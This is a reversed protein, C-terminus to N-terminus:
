DADLLRLRDHWPSRRVTTAFRRDATIVLYGRLESLALYFCDYVPHDLALAIGAAVPALEAIPVLEDFVRCVQFPLEKVQDTTALGRRYRLWGVDCTEAVVLDPAVVPEGEEVLRRAAVSGAEPFLLKAVVSADLIRTM